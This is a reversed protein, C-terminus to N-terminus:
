DQRVLGMNEKKEIKTIAIHLLHHFLIAQM